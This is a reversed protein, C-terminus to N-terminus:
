RAAPAPQIAPVKIAEVEPILSRWTAAMEAALKAEAVCLNRFIISLDRTKETQFRALEGRMREALLNYHDRAVEERRTAESVEQECETLRQPVVPVEARARALKAKKAAVAETAMQQDATCHMARDALVLKIVGLIRIYEKLPLEFKLVLESTQKNVAAALADARNGLATFPQSLVGGEVDGLMIASVGFEALARSLDPVHPHEPAYPHM